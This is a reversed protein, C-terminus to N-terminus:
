CDTMQGTSAGLSLKSPISFFTQYLPRPTSWWRSTPCLLFLWSALSFNNNFHSSFWLFRSDTLVLFHKRLSPSSWIHQIISEPFLFLNLVSFQGIAKALHEKPWQLFLWTFLTAQIFYVLFPILLYSDPTWLCPWKNVTYAQSLNQPKIEEKRFQFYCYLQLEESKGSNHLSQSVRYM